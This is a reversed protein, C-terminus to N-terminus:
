ELYRMASQKMQKCKNLYSLKQLLELVVTPLPAHFLVAQLSIKTKLLCNLPLQHYNLWKFDINASLFM